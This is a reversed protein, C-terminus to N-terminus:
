CSSLEPLHRDHISTSLVHKQRHESDHNPRSLYLIIMPKGNIYPFEDARM